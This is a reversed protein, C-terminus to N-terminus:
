SRRVTAYLRNLLTARTDDPQAVLMGARLPPAGSGKALLERAASARAAAEPGIFVAVLEDGGLRALLDAGAAARRLRDAAKGLVADGALFSGQENVQKLGVVDCIVVALCRPTGICERLLAELVTRSALGTVHDADLM